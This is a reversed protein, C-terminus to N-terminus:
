ALEPQLSLPYFKVVEGCCWACLSREVAGRVSRREVPGVVSTDGYFPQGFKIPLILTDKGGRKHQLYTLDPRLAAFGDRFAM